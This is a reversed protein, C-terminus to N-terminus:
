FPPPGDDDPPAPGTQTPQAIQTVLRTQRNHLRETAIRAARNQARTATRLPMMATREGCREKAPTEVAPLNGTPACLSPFLLASGPTTVYTHGDPLTWIVTGDPLQKDRWGWFTKLLHHLRCLCKLNSPHTAGGNAYPITHDIDCGVAPRDCGPARCTLDRCRVFEALKASNSCLKSDVPRRRCVVPAIALQPYGSRSGRAIGSTM